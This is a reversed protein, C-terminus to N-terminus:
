EGGNDSYFTKLKHNFKNEVIAKWRTFIHRVDSKNRIPYFWVYHTYHDAFIVYYKYGDVSFVPSTWVDSFVLELPHSSTLSTQSFPTKHSKSVLCDTCHFNSDKNSLPLLSKLVVSNLIPLAPHGLRSHWLSLPCKVSSIFVSSSSIPASQSPWEYGGDKSQGHLIQAGSNLDKVQFQNPFFEVSVFNDTCLKNVSILNKSIQPVRLVNNLYLSRKTSPLTSLGTHTIQLGAGNGVHVEEGGNYPTHMSLNALDSTVHHSAGSDLLWSPPDPSSMMANYAQPPWQYQSQPPGNNVQSVIRFQPCQKATHGQTGCAQCRGLYPKPGRNNQGTRNAQYNTNNHPPRWNKQKNHHQNTQAAQTHHATALLMLPSAPPTQLATERNILKEHLEAFSIATDRAHVSEIVAKFDDPLGALIIDTLDEADMPNGLLALSDSKTKIIQMYEDVSKSGKVSQQLQNRLQKIHGRTPKGYTSALTTWAELSTNASAILPQNTKEIAGMLASYILADQRTWSDFAPNTQERDAVTITESPPAASSDIFKLMNYGRLLAKIQISWTLYNTSSLKTVNSMNINLVSNPADTTIIETTAFNNFAM